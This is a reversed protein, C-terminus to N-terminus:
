GNVMLWQGNIKAERDGNVGTWGNVLPCSQRAICLLKDAMEQCVLLIAHRDGQGIIGVAAM